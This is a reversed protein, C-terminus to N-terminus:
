NIANQTPAHTKSNRTIAAKSVVALRLVTEQRSTKQTIASLGKLGHPTQSFPKARSRYSASVAKLLNTNM